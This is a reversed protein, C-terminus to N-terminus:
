KDDKPVNSLTTSAHALRLLEDLALQIATIKEDLAKRSEDVKTDLAKRTEDVKTDLAKRSEDVAKHTKDLNRDLAEQMTKKIANLRGVWNDDGQNGSGELSLVHLWTPEMGRDERWKPSTVAILIQEMELIIKAQECRWVGLSGQLIHEHTDGMLSILLNLMIIAAFMTFGIYLTRCLIRLWMENANDFITVDPGALTASFLSVFSEWVSAFPSNSEDMGFNDIKGLVFFANGFGMIVVFLLLFFYQIDSVIQFVTRVLVGTERFGRFYYLIKFWLLLSVVATIVHSALSLGFDSSVAEDAQNTAISVVVGVYMVMDVINWPDSTFYEVMPKSQWLQLVEMLVMPFLNILLLVSWIYRITQHNFYTYASFNVALLVSLFGFFGFMSLAYKSWKFRLIVELMPKEFIDVVLGDQLKVVDVCCALFSDPGMSCVGPLPVISAKVRVQNANALEMERNPTPSIKNKKFDIPSPQALSKWVTKSVDCITEGGRVMEKTEGALVDSPFHDIIFLEWFTELGKVTERPYKALANQIKFASLHPMPPNKVPTSVDNQQQRSIESSIATIITMLLQLNNNDVALDLLTQKRKTRYIEVAWVIQPNTELAKMIEVDYDKKKVLTHLINKGPMTGETLLMQSKFLDTFLIGKDLLNLVDQNSPYNLFDEWVRVTNDWSGSVIKSGDGSWAVSMVDSEHGKLIRVFPKFADLLFSPLLNNKTVHAVAEQIRM